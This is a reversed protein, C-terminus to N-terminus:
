RCNRGVFQQLEIIKAKDGAYTKEYDRMFVAPCLNSADIAGPNIASSSLSGTSYMAMTGLLLAGFIGVSIKQHTDM